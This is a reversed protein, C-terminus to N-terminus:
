KTKFQTLQNYYIVYSDSKFVFIGDEDLDGKKKFQALKFFAAKSIYGMIYATKYDYSVNTFFYYDCKQNPNFAPIGCKGRPIGKAKRTKVDVKKGEIILDYDFTSNFDCKYKDKFYEHVVIEGLAGYINSKVETISNNLNCFNYLVTALKM